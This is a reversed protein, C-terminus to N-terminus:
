SQVCHIHIPAGNIIKWPYRRHAQWLHQSEHMRPVHLPYEIRYISIHVLFTCEDSVPHKPPFDPYWSSFVRAATGKNESPVGLALVMDVKEAHMYRPMSLPHSCGSLHCTRSQIVARTLDHSSWSLAEYLSAVISMNMAMTAPWTHLSWPVDGLMFCNLLAYGPVFTSCRWITDIGHAPGLIYLRM